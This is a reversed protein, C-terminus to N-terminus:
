FQLRLVSGGSMAWQRRSAAKAQEANLMAQYRRPSAIQGVAILTGVMNRVMKYFHHRRRRIGTPPATSSKAICPPLTPVNDSKCGFAAFDHEGVYLAAAEQMAALNRGKVAATYHRDFPQPYQHRGAHPLTQGQRQLTISSPMEPSPSSKSMTTSCRNTFQIKDPM